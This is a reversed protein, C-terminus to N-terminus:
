AMERQEDSRLVAGSLQSALVFTALMAFMSVEGDPLSLELRDAYM